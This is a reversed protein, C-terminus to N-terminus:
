SIQDYSSDVITQKKIIREDKILRDLMVFIDGTIIIFTKWYDLDLSQGKKFQYIVGRWPVDDDEWIFVGSNHLTNRIHTALKLLDNYNDLSLEHLLEPYVKSFISLRIKVLYQQIFPDLSM